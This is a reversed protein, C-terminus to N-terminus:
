KVGGEKHYFEKRYKNTINILSPGLLKYKEVIDNFEDRNGVAKADDLAEKRWSKVMDVTVGRFIFEGRLLTRATSKDIGANTLDKFIEAKTRGAYEAAVVKDRLSTWNDFETNLLNLTMEELRDGEISSSPLKSYEHLSDRSKRTQGTYNFRAERTISDAPSYHQLNFGMGALFNVFGPANNGDEGLSENVVAGVATGITRPALKFAGRGIENVGKPDMGNNIAFGKMADWAEPYNNQINSPGRSRPDSAGLMYAGVKMLEPLYTNEIVAGKATSFLSEIDGSMAARGLGRAMENVPGRPDFRSMDFVIREGNEGRHIIMPTAGVQDDYLAQKAIFDEKERKERKRKREEESDGEDDDDGWAVSAAYNVATGLLTTMAPGAISLGIARQIVHSQLTDAAETAGQERLSRVRQIDTAIYAASGLFSRHVEWLYTTFWVLGTAEPVKALLPARFYSPNTRKVREAANRRIQEPDIDIGAQDYVKTLINVQHYYNSIKTWADSVSFLDVVTNKGKLLINNPSLRGLTALLEANSLEGVQVSDGIGLRFVELVEDTTAKKDVLNILQSATKVGKTWTTPSFNGDSALLLPSGGVNLAIGAVNTAVSVFKGLRTIPRVFSSALAGYLRQGYNSTKGESIDKLIKGFTETAELKADLYSKVEPTVRMGQLPGFTPGNLTETHIIPNADQEKFVHTGELKLMEQMMRQRSIFEAQRNLTSFLNYAADEHEGMLELVPKPISKRETVITLDAREGAGYYKALQSATEQDTLGLIDKVLREARPYLEKEKWDGETEQRERAGLLDEIKRQRNLKRARSKRKKETENPYIAKLSDATHGDLFDGFYTHHLRDLSKTKMEGLGDADPIYLDNTMFYQMANLVRRRYDKIREAKKGFFAKGLSGKTALKEALNDLKRRIQQDLGSEIGAARAMGESYRKGGGKPDDKMFNRTVYLYDADTASKLIKRAIHDPIKIGHKYSQELIDIANLKITRIAEDVISKLEPHDALAANVQSIAGERGRVAKTLAERLTGDKDNKNLYSQIERGINRAVIGKETSGQQGYEVIERVINNLSGGSRTWSEITKRLAGEPTDGKKHVGKQKAKETNVLDIEVGGKKPAKANAKGFVESTIEGNKIKTNSLSQATALSDSIKIAEYLANADSPNVGLLRRVADLFSSLANMISNGSSKKLTIKRLEDQFKKNSFVEAVFEAINTMGYRGLDIKGSDVLENYLNELDRIAAKEDATRLSKPKLLAKYTAAHAIEHQAVWALVGDGDALAGSSITITDTNADYQGYINEGTKEDVLWGDHLEVKSDLKFKRLRNALHKFLPDSTNKEITSLVSDVNKGERQLEDTVWSAGDPHSNMPIRSIGDGSKLEPTVAEPNFVVYDNGLKSKSIGGNIGLSALHESAAKYDFKDVRTRGADVSFAKAVARYLDFGTSEPTLATAARAMIPDSSIAQNVVEPQENVNGKMDMMTNMDPMTAASITSGQGLAPSNAGPMDNSTNQVYTRAMKARDTFYVGYGDKMNGISAKNIDPLENVQMSARHTRVARVGEVAPAAPAKANVVGAKVPKQSNVGKRLDEFNVQGLDIPAETKKNKSKKTKPEETKTFKTVPNAKDWAPLDIAATDRIAEERTAGNEMKQAVTQAIFKNRETTRRTAATKKESAKKKRATEEVKGVVSEVQKQDPTKPFQLQQQVPEPTVETTTETPATTQTQTPTIGEIAGSKRLADAMISGESALKEAEKTRQSVQEINQFGEEMQKQVEIQAKAQDELIQRNQEPTRLQGVETAQQDQFLDPQIPPPNSMLDNLEGPQTRDAEIMDEASARQGADFAPDGTPAISDLIRKVNTERIGQRVNGYGEVVSTPAESFMETLIDGVSTIEGSSVLQKQAEGAGGTASGLVLDTLSRKLANTFGTKGFFKGALATGLADWAAVSAAGRQADTRVSDMFKDDSMYQAYQIPDNPDGGAETIKQDMIGQFEQNYSYFAQTLPGAKNGTLITMMLPVAQQGMSNAIVNYMASPTAADWWEGLNKASSMRQLSQADEISPGQAEALRQLRNEEIRKNRYARQEYEKDTEGAMKAGSFVEKPVAETLATKSQKYGSIFPNTITEWWSDEVPIFRQTQESTDEPSEEVAPPGFKNQWASELAARYDDMASPPGENLSSFNPRSPEFNQPRNKWASDLASKYDDFSSPM